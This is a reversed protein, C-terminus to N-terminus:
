RKVNGGKMKRVNELHLQFNYDKEKVEKTQKWYNHINSPSGYPETGDQRVEGKLKKDQEEKLITRIINREEETTHRLWDFANNNKNTKTM